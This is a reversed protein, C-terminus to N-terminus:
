AELSWVRLTGDSGASIIKRGDPTFILDVIDGIHGALKQEVQWNSTDWLWIENDNGIALLNGDPSFKITRIFAGSFKIESLYKGTKSDWAALRINEVDGVSDVSRDVTYTIIQAGDPSLAFGDVTEPSEYTVSIISGEASVSMTPVLAFPEPFTLMVMSADPDIIKISGQSNIYVHSGDSSYALSDGGAQQIPQTIQMSLPDIFAVELNSVVALKTGDPSFMLSNPTDAISVQGILGHTAVDWFRVFLDFGSSALTKGDPSFALATVMGQHGELTSIIQPDSPDFLFIKAQYATDVIQSAISTGFAAINGDPSIVTTTIAANFYLFDPHDVQDFVWTAFKKYPFTGEAAGSGLIKTKPPLAGTFSNRGIVKGEPWSIARVDWSLLFAASGDTYTGTQTRSESICLVTQVESASLNGLHPLQHSFEWAPVDDYTIKKMVAFPATMATMEFLASFANECLPSAERELVDPSITSTPVLTRTPAQTATSTPFPTESPHLIETLSIAPTTMPTAQCAALIFVLPFTFLIRVM